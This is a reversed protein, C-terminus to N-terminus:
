NDWGTLKIIGDWIYKIIGRRNLSILVKAEIIHKNDSQELYPSVQKIEKYQKQATIILVSTETQKNNMQMTNIQTSQWM